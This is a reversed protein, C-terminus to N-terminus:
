KKEEAKIAREQMTGIVKRDQDDVFLFPRAPIAVRKKLIFLLFGTSEKKGKRKAFVCRGKVTERTFWVSWGSAKMAKVMSGPRYGYRRQLSRTRGSAPIWLWKSKKAQITGGLQQLRAGIRSTGVYAEDGEQRHTISTMLLGTDRLTLNSGKVATTLPANPPLIGNRIKRVTSSEMYRAVKLTLDKANIVISETKIEFTVNITM